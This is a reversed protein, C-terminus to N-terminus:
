RATTLGLGERQEGGAHLVFQGRDVSELPSPALRHEVTPEAVPPLLAVSWDDDDVGGRAGVVEGAHQAGPGGVHGDDVGVVNGRV